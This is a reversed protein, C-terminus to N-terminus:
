KLVPIEVKHSIDRRALKALIERTANQDFVQEGCVPCEWHRVGHIMVWGGNSEWPLDKDVLKMENTCVQCTMAEM